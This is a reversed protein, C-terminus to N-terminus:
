FAVAGPQSWIGPSSRDDAAPQEVGRKRASPSCNAAIQPMTVCNDLRALKRLLFGGRLAASPSLTLIRVRSARNQLGSHYRKVVSGTPVSTAFRVGDWRNM